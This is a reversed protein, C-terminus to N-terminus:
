SFDIETLRLRLPKLLPEMVVFLFSSLFLLLLHHHHHHRRNDHDPLSKGKELTTRSYAGYKRFDKGQKSWFTHNERM